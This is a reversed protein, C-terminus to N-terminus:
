ILISLVKCSIIIFSHLFYKDLLNTVDTTLLIFLFYLSVSCCLSILFTICSSLLKLISLIIELSNDLLAGIQLNNIKTQANQVNKVIENQEKQLQKQEKAITVAEEKKKTNKAHNIASKSTESKVTLWTSSNLYMIVGSISLLSKGNIACNMYASLYDNTILNYSSSNKSMRENIELSNSLDGVYKNLCLSFIEENMTEFLNNDFKSESLSM